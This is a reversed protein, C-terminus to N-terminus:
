EKFSIPLTPIWGTMTVFQDPLYGAKGKLDIVNLQM